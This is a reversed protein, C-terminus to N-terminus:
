VAQVRVSEALAGQHIKEGAIAHSPGDKAQPAADEALANERFIGGRHRQEPPVHAKKEEHRRAFFHGGVYLLTAAAATAFVDVAAIKGYRYAESAVMSGDKAMVQAPKKVIKCALNAFEEEFTQFTKKFLQSATFLSAFVVGWATLRGQVLSLLTQQPAKVVNEQPGEEGLIVNAKAVLPEKYHEALAVPLLMMNGGQMLATTLTAQKAVNKSTEPTFFRSLGGELKAVCKETFASGRGETLWKTLWLTAVFTGVGAIGGYVTWDFLSEGRSRKPGTDDTHPARPPAATTLSEEM